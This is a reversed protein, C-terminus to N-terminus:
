GLTLWVRTESADRNRCKTIQKNILMYAVQQRYVLQISLLVLDGLVFWCGLYIIEIDLISVLSYEWLLINLFADKLSSPNEAWYLIAYVLDTKESRRFLGWLAWLFLRVYLVPAMLPNGAAWCTWSLQIHKSTHSVLLRLYYVLRGKILATLKSCYSIYTIFCGSRMFSMCVCATCM